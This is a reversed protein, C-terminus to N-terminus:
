EDEYVLGITWTKAEGTECYASAVPPLLKPGCQSAPWSQDAAIPMVSAQRKWVSTFGSRRERERDRDETSTPCFRVTMPVDEPPVGVYEHRHDVFPIASGVDAQTQVFTGALAPSRVM